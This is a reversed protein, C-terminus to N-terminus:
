WVKFIFEKVIIDGNKYLVGKQYVHVNVSSGTPIEKELRYNDSIVVFDANSPFNMKAKLYSYNEEYLKKIDHLSKNSLITKEYVAGISYSGASCIPL